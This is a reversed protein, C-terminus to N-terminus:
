VNPKEPQKLEVVFCRASFVSAVSTVVNEGGAVSSWVAICSILCLNVVQQEPHFGHQREARRASLMNMIDAPVLGLGCISGRM